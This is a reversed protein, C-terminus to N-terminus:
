VIQLFSEGNDLHVKRHHRCMFSCYIPGINSRNPRTSLCLLTHSSYYKRSIKPIQICPSLPLVCYRRLELPPRCRAHQFSEPDNGEAGRPKDWRTNLARDTSIPQLHGPGHALSSLTHMRRWLTTYRSQQAYSLLFLFTKPKYLHHQHCGEGRYAYVRWPASLHGGLFPFRRSCFDSDQSPVPPIETTGFFHPLVPTYLLHKCETSPGYQQYL